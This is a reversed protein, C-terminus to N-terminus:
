GWSGVEGNIDRFLEIMEVSIGSSFGLLLMNSVDESFPGDMFNAKVDSGSDRINIGGVEIEILVAADCKSLGSSVGSMKTKLVHNLLLIRGEGARRRMSGEHYSILNLFVKQFPTPEVKQSLRNSREIEATKNCKLVRNM